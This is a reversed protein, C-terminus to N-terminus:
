QEFSLKCGGYNVRCAILGVGGPQRCSRVSLSAREMGVTLFGKPSVTAEIHIAPIFASQHYATCTDM